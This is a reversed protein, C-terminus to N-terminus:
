RENGDLEKLRLVVLRTWSLRPELASLLRQYCFM